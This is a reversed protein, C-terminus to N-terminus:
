ENGILAKSSITKTTPLGLKKLREGTRILNDNGQTFRKYADDYKTRAADLATGVGELSATFNVLQEYLKTGRKVIEETNKNQADRRWLDGILKLLAFLNTPSSIIVRKQYADGWISSDGQLAALFAPESPIFMVVFEPSDVLKHYSKASLERLHNRVSQIHAELLRRRETADECSSYNVFATLSTKSDIIIQKNDPLQLVVDPRVNNGEEDKFNQQISYHTGKVLNSNELITELIMEGWDGQVKSNSRLANTLNTTEATIKRNLEILRELENRLAGRQENEFNYITEVREKFSTINERFPKLLTDISESNTAKLQQQQEKIIENAINRFHAEMAKERQQLQERQSEQQEAHRSKVEELQERLSSLKDESRNLEITLDSNSRTLDDIRSQMHTARRLQLVVAITAITAIVLLIATEM